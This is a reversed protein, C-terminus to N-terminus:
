QAVGQLLGLVRTGQGEQDEVIVFNDGLLRGVGVSRPANEGVVHAAM